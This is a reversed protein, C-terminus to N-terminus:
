NIVYTLEIEHQNGATISGLNITTTNPSTIGFDGNDGDSGDTISTNDLSISGPKYNMEIPTTDTIVVNDIVGSGSTNIQIKYTVESGTIATSGGQPDKVSVITKDISLTATPRTTPDLAIYSGRTSHSADRINDETGADDTFITDVKDVINATSTAITASGDDNKDATAHLSVLSSHGALIAQGDNLLPIDCRVSINAQQDAELKINGTTPVIVGPLPAGTVSTVTTTCNSSDFDDTSLSSNTALEFEQTDNGENTLLFNLEAQSDGLTVDTNGNSTISLDIKRDVKFTTEQGNGIGPASNGTPSSEIAQQDTGSIKYNVVVKNSIATGAAVGQAYTVNPVFCNLVCMIGMLSFSAKNLKHGPKQLALRYTILLQKM